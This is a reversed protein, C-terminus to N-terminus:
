KGKRKSASAASGARARSPTTAKDGAAEKAAPVSASAASSSSTPKAKAAAAVRAEDVRLIRRAATIMQVISVCQKFVFVPACITYLACSLPMEKTLGAIAPIVANFPAVEAKSQSIFHMMLFTENMLCVVFLAYPMQYYFRIVAPEDEM